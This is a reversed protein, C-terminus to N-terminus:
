SHFVFYVNLEGLMIVALGIMDTTKLPQHGPVIDLSFAVNGLPVMITM